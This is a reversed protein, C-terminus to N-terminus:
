RRRTKDQLKPIGSVFNAWEQLDEDEAESLAEGHSRIAAVIWEWDTPDDSCDSEDPISLCSLM